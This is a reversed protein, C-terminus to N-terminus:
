LEMYTEYAVRNLLEDNSDFIAVANDPHLENVTNGCVDLTTASVIHDVYVDEHDLCLEVDWLIGFHIFTLPVVKM